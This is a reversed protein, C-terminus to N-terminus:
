KYLVTIGLNGSNAITLGTKTAVDFKYAPPPDSFTQTGLTITGIVAASTGVSDYITIVGSAVRTPVVVGAFFCPSNRITTTGAATGVLTYDYAGPDRTVFGQQTVDPM